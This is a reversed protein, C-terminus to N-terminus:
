ETKATELRGRAVQFYYTDIEFGTFKVGLNRCAIATNGIGLFPDLVHLGPRRGHLKICNEALRPPYSAPHPRDADRNQITEYPIFWCNGRCRLRHNGSKWRAVNSQDKYPVGLALRDLKVMGTKTLHFIYEHTDNLFRNSNIPKYHGVNIDTAQGYSDAEIYISKIWHIVNQLAFRETLASLVRFPIDPASPRSGINLFLSGDDALADAIVEGWATLWALYKELPLRDNYSHYKVGINYPPSTVVIDVSGPKIRKPIATLCDENYLQIAKKAAVTM